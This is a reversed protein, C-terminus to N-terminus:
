AAEHCGKGDARAVHASPEQHPERARHVKEAHAFTPKRDSEDDPREEIPLENRCPKAYVGFNFVIGERKGVEKRVAELVRTPHQPNRRGDDNENEERNIARAADDGAGAEKFVGESHIIRGRNPGSGRRRNKVDEDATKQGHAPRVGNLCRQHADCEDDRGKHDGIVESAKRGGDGLHFADIGVHEVHHRVLREDANRAKQRPAESVEALGMDEHAEHRRFRDLHNGVGAAHRKQPHEKTKPAGHAHAKEAGSVKRLVGILGCEDRFIM